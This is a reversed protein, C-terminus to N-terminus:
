AVATSQGSTGAGRGRGLYVFGRAVVTEPDFVNRADLLVRGKMVAKLELLDLNRFENWETLVAIGDAGRAAQHADPCFSLREHQVAQAASTNAVPDYAQVATGEQLLLRVFSIAPSERVDDTLPKYALGLVGITHGKLDGMQRKMRELLYACAEENTRLAGHLTPLDLGLRKGAALLARADKPLCSGGFGPGPHLFKPGIRKDLGLVRAVDHVDVGLDDALNAMENIFSIKLALFANSAYKALEATENTTTVIPTEILYLPRYIDRVIALAQQSAGGLVIRDPRMFNEVASGERLFEPNSVVDFAVETEKKLETALRRATGVPVTSKIVLVKYERIERAIHRAVDFLPKLNPEGPANEEETGVAIFVVLSQAVAETLKTSFNLRGVKMNKHVLEALGPEHFPVKESRLSEIKEVQNDVCNVTVGFDAICAAAVLGVRGAGVMVVNM